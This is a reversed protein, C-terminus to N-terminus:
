VHGLRNLLWLYRCESEDLCRSRRWREKNGKERGTATVSIITFAWGVRSSNHAPTLPDYVRSPSDPGWSLVDCIMKMNVSPNSLWQRGKTPGVGTLSVQLSPKGPRLCGTLLLYWNFESFIYGITEWCLDFENAERGLNSVDTNRPCIWSQGLVKNLRDWNM